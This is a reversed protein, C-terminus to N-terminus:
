RIFSGDGTNVGGRPVVSVQPPGTTSGLAGATDAAPTAATGYEYLECAIGNHNADLDDANNAASGGIATFYVQAANQSPFDRCDRDGTPTVGSGGSLAEASPSTATTGSSYTGYNYDECAIGNRNADLYRANNTASGGASTFYVQAAAQSPFDSCNKDGTAALGPASATAGAGSAGAAGGNYDECAIGNRNIDLDHVNNTASGGVSTFYVQAAAQSPFYRCYNDTMASGTPAAAGPSAGTTVSGTGGPAPTVTSVPPPDIPVTPIPDNPTVTTVPPPDIPVTPIPDDALAAGSWVSGFFLIGAGVGAVWVGVERGKGAM